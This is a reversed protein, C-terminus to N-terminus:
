KFKFVIPINKFIIREKNLNTYKQGLQKITKLKYLSLLDILYQKSDDKNDVKGDSSRNWDFCQVRWLIFVATSINTNNTHHQQLLATDM